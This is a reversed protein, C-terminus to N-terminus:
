KATAIADITTITKPRKQYEWISKPLIKTLSWPSLFSSIFPGEVDADIITGRVARTPVHIIAKSNDIQLSVVNALAKVIEIRTPRKVDAFIAIFWM